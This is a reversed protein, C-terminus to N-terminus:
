KKLLLVIIIVFIVCGIIIYILQPSTSTTAIQTNTTGNALDNKSTNGPTNGPTNVLTNGPTNVPTDGPTNGPTNVPTDGPTNESTNTNGPTNRSSGPANLLQSGQRGQNKLSNASETIVGSFKNIGGGQVQSTMNTTSSDTVNTDTNTNIGICEPTQDPADPGGLMILRAQILCRLKIAEPTTGQAVAYMSGLSM